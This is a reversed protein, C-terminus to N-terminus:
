IIKKNIIISENISKELIKNNIENHHHYGDNLLYYSYLMDINNILYNLSNKLMNSDLNNRLYYNMINNNQHFYFILKLADNFNIIIDERSNEYFYLLKIFPHHYEKEYLDKSKIIIQNLLSTIRDDNIEEILYVMKLFDPISSPAVMGDILIDVIEDFYEGKNEKNIRRIINIIEVTLTAKLNDFYDEKFELIENIYKFIRYLEKNLSGIEFDNYTENLCENYITKIDKHTYGEIENFIMM